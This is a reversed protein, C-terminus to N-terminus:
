GREGVEGGDGEGVEAAQITSKVGVWRPPRSDFAGLRVLSRRQGWFPSHPAPSPSKTPPHWREGVQLEEEGIGAGQGREQAAQERWGGGRQQSTDWGVGWAM